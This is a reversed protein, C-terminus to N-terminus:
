AMELYDLNNRPLSKINTGLLGCLAIVHIYADVFGIDNKGLLARLLGANAGFGSSFIIVDELGAFEAIKEELEKHIDLYGGVVPAACAGTGYKRLVNIGAKLRRQTEPCEGILMRSLLLLKM